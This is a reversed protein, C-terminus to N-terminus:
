PSSRTASAGTPLYPDPLGVSGGQRREVHRALDLYLGEKRMRLDLYILASASTQIVAGVASLVLTVILQLVSFVVGAVIATTSGTGNPDLLVLVIPGIISFPAVVINMAIGVIAGVLLQIGFTRWFFGDTLTWSRRVAETLSLREIMLVSPVLSLKTGLWVGLALLAFGGFLGLLVGFLIGVAGLTTVMLWILAVLIGLVILLAVSVLASWGVLAGIRGKALALLGRLTLKEGLAARSVELVLVGQLIANAVIGLFVALLASVVGLGVSGAVIASQDEQAANELRLISSIGAFGVVLLTIVTVVGQVLLAAGFTPRPNRRLVRFSAGLLTGLDLPRLPILGPRPPPTWGPASPAAGAPGYAWPADQPSAPEPGGPAQWARDETVIPEDPHDAEQDRDPATRGTAAPM